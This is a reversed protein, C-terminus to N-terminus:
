DWSTDRQLVRKLMILVDQIDKQIWVANGFLKWDHKPDDRLTEVDKCLDEYVTALHTYENLLEDDDIQEQSIMEAIRRKVHKVSTALCELTFM